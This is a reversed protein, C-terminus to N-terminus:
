DYKRRTYKQKPKAPYKRFTMRNKHKHSKDRQSLALFLDRASEEPTKTVIVTEEVPEVTSSRIPSSPRTPPPSQSPSRISRPSKPQEEVSGMSIPSPSRSVRPSSQPCKRPVWSPFLKRVLELDEVSTEHPLEHCFDFDVKIRDKHLTYENDVSVEIPLAIKAMVFRTQSM